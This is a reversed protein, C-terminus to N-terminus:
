VSRKRKRHGANTRLSLVLIATGIVASFASGILIGAKAQVLIQGELSLSAVFLSMTFGIGALCGAGIIAKWNSGGPIIGLKSKVVLFLSLVIGVPKGVLLALAVTAAVPSSLASVSIPIGANALAFIPMILFAAWPHVDAEFRELPSISERTVFVMKDMVDRLKASENPTSELGIAGTAQKLGRGLEARSILPIAPTLLGLAVGSITPHIGSKLTCLWIAAGIVLYGVVTRVGIKNLIVIFALGLIAAALWTLSFQSSYFVAIVLVAIIDDVIALTLLFVKLGHPIRNGLLALAGVVFAIDTAMPIAWGHEGPQDGLLFLYVAAPVAAGGLAAVAPSILRRVERLEGSVIERKIELGVLFFFVTMLGDNVWYWLPYSLAWEGIGLTLDLNWFQTYFEKFSTNAAVLALVTALILVLGSAAEVHLFRLLPSSLRTIPRVDSPLDKMYYGTGRRVNRGINYCVVFRKTLLKIMFHELSCHEVLKLVQVKNKILHSKPIIKNVV